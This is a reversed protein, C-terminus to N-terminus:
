GFGLNRTLQINPRITQSRKPKLKSSFLGSCGRGALDEGSVEGGAGCDLLRAGGVAEESLGAVDEESLGSEEEM